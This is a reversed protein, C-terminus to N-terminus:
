ARSAIMNGHLKASDDSSQIVSEDLQPSHIRTVDRGCKSLKDRDRETPGFFFRSEQKIASSSM